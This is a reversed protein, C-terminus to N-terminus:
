GFDVLSVIKKNIDGGLGSLYYVNFHSFSIKKGKYLEEKEALNKLELIAYKLTDHFRVRYNDKM